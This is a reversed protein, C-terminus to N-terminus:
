PLQESFMVDLDNQDNFLAQLRMPLNQGDITIAKANFDLTIGLEAMTEVGLILDYTPPRNGAPIDIIDPKLHIWKSKSYEPFELELRGVKTTEFIGNRELGLRVVLLPYSNRLSLIRNSTPLTRVCLTHERSHTYM